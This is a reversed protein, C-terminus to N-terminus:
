SSAIARRNAGPRRAAAHAPEGRGRRPQRRQEGADARAIPGHVAMLTLALTPALQKVNM